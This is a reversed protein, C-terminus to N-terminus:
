SRKRRQFLFFCVVTAAFAACAAFLWYRTRSVSRDRGDISVRKGDKNVKYRQSTSQDFVIAGPPPTVRFQDAQVTEPFTVSDLYAETSSQVQGNPLYTIVTWSSPVWAYEPHKYDAEIRAFLSATSFADARLIQLTDPKVWFKTRPGKDDTTLLETILICRRSEDHIYGDTIQMQTLNLGGVNPRLPQAAWLLPKITVVAADSFSKSEIVTPAAGGESSLKASTDGDLVSIHESSNNLASGDGTRNYRIRGNSILLSSSRSNTTAKPSPPVGGERSQAAAVIDKLSIHTTHVDHWKFEVNSCKEQQESWQRELDSRTDGRSESVMTLVLACCILLASLRVTETQRRM